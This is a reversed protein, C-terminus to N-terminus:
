GRQGRGPDFPTPRIVGKGEAWHERGYGDEHLNRNRYSWCPNCWGLAERDGVANTFNTENGCNKCIPKPKKM